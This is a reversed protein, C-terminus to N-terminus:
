KSYILKGKKYTADVGIAARSYGGEMTYPDKDLIVMDAHKGVELSGKIDEQHSAYAANITYIKFAEDLSVRRHEKFANVAADIGVLSDMPTVPCDSGGTTMVGGAMFRNFKEEIDAKEPSMWQLYANGQEGDLMNGIGPQTNAVINMEAAMEIHEDSPLSFHEIRHRLHKIGIEMDVQRYIWIIQDVARDGIAHVAVQMEAQTCAKVFEYLERDSFNLLGRTSPMTPYADIYCATYQPPSGDVSLCGGIQKLGHEMVRPLDFTQFYPVYEIPLKDLIKLLVEVDKDDKVFMGDLAHVTTMGLSACREATDTYIKEFYSDPMEAMVSGIIYFSHADELFMGDKKIYLMEDPLNALELAKSNAVGGHGTWFALLVPHNGSVKDLEGIDPVRKDEMQEPMLMNGGIIVMDSGDKSCAEEVIDLIGKSTSVGAIPLGHEIIGSASVHAHTDVLGPILARGNLDVTEKAEGTFDDDGLAQIIGDNVAIWRKKSFDGDMTVISGNKILLDFSSM